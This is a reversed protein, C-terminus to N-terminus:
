RGQAAALRALVLSAAEDLRAALIEPPPSIRAAERAGKGTLVLATHTGAARAAAVDREADGITWSAALDLGRERALDLLMGPAPKRCRCVRRLEGRGEEPHHPCHRIADVRAGEQALLEAMRAHIAALGAEDLWGRALASQNTVVLVPVGAENLLRVGRAAGELLVVQDPALVWADERLLVGDRDLFVAARGSM